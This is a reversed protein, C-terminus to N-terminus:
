VAAPTKPPPVSEATVPDPITSTQAAASIEKRRARRERQEAPDPVPAAAILAKTYPDRPSDAIQEAPGHEVVQGGRVVIIQDSLYRVVSLDHTIFLYSLGRSEKLEALLNLIQAQVSLDLASTPEDCLLFDPEMVLARAIAIRQRQGGSFQGPYRGAAAAPLSVDDLARAIRDRIEKAPLHLTYKLSEALTEGITLAPNMSGYPDQFIVQMRRALRRRMEVTRKTIDEGDFEITGSTVDTLGLIASGITSKGSGSEGVVGVTQGRFVDFDVGRVARVPESRWGPRKYTVELDRVRLLPTESPTNTDSM